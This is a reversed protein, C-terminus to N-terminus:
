GPWPRRCSLRPCCRRTGARRAEPAPELQAPESLCSVLGDRDSTWTEDGRGFEGISARLEYVPPLAANLGLEIADRTLEYIMQEFGIVETRAFLALALAQRGDPGSDAWLAPLSRLYAVVEAPTLRGSRVPQRALQEEGDLRAMATQWAAVDRTRALRRGLEDRDREIRALSDRDVDAPCDNYLRVAESISKEDVGGVQELLEGIADEYWDQPYSHGQVRKDHAASYRRRM